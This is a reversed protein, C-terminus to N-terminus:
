RRVVMYGGDYPMVGYEENLELRWNDDAVVSGQMRINNIAVMITGSVTLLPANRVEIRGFSSRRESSYGRTLTVNDPLFYFSIDRGGSIIGGRMVDFPIRLFVENERMQAIEDSVLRIREALEEEERRITDYDYRAKDIEDFGWIATIGLAYGLIAGLDSDANLEEKWFINMDNLLFAYLSGTVRTYNFQLSSGTIDAMISHATNTLGTLIEGRDRANVSAAAYDALGLWLENNNEIRTHSFRNRRFDRFSLANEISARREDYSETAAANLLAKIEL